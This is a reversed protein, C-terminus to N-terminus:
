KDGFTAWCEADEPGGGNLVNKFGNALLFDKAKQGRGGGGCHTIVPVSEKGGAAEIWASPIAALDMASAARDYVCNVARARKGDGIPAKENSVADGAEVSFDKNRVDLVVLNEGAAAVFAALEAPESVGPKRGMLVASTRLARPAGLARPLPRFALAAFAVAQM